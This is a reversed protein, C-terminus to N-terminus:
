TSMQTQTKQSKEQLINQVQESESNDTHLADCAVIIQLPAYNLSNLSDLSQM